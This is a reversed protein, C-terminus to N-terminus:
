LPITAKTFNLTQISSSSDHLDTYHMLLSDAGSAVSTISVTLMEGDRNMRLDSQSDGEGGTLHFFVVDQMTPFSHQQLWDSFWGERKEVTSQDYLTVSSWTHAQAADPQSIHKQWGDWRCEYLLNNGAIIITFPEIEQLSILRYSSIPDASALIDLFILGRSKQYPPTHVHKTFAGNLLVAVVGNENCGIWSGGADADRPFLLTYGNIVHKVPPLARLRSSKEDRSHTIYFRSGSPIYSVTCM